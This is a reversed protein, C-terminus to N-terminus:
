KREVSRFQRNVFRGLTRTGNADLKILLGPVDTAEFHPFAQAALYAAVRKRGCTTDVDSLCESLGRAEGRQHPMRPQIYCESGAPAFASPSGQSRDRPGGGAMSRFVAISCGCLRGGCTLADPAVGCTMEISEHGLLEQVAKRSARRM